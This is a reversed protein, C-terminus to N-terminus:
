AGDGMRSGLTWVPRGAQGLDAAVYAESVNLSAPVEFVLNSRKSDYRELRSKTYINGVSTESPLELPSHQMGQYHLSFAERDPTDITYLAGSGKHGLNTVKVTVLLFIHGAEPEFRERTENRDTISSIRGTSEVMLSIMNEGAPDDYCHRKLLPLADAFEDDPAPSEAFHMSTLFEDTFGPTDGSCESMAQLLHTCGDSIYRLAIESEEDTLPTSNRLIDGAELYDELSRIFASRAAEQQPSVALCRARSLADRSVAYMETANEGLSEGEPSHLSHVTKVSLMMLSVGTRGILEALEEDGDAHVAAEPPQDTMASIEVTEDEREPEGTLAAAHPLPASVNDPMANSDVTNEGTASAMSSLGSHALMEEVQVPFLSGPSAASRNEGDHAVQPDLISGAHVAAVCSCLLMAVLTSVAIYTRISPSQYAM